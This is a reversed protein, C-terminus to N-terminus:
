SGASQNDLLEALIDLADVTGSFKGNDTVILKTYQHRIMKETVSQLQDNAEIITTESPQLDSVKAQHLINIGDHSKLTKQVYLLLDTATIVGQVEKNEDVVALISIRSSVMYNLADAFSDEM